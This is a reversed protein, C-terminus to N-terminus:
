EKFLAKVRPSKRGRPPETLILGAAVLQKLADYKAYRNIGQKALSYNPLTVWEAWRAKDLITMAVEYTTGRANVKRLQQRWMLPVQTFGYRKRM